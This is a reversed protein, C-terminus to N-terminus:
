FSKRITQQRKQGPRPLGSPGGPTTVVAAGSAYNARRQAYRIPFDPYTQVPGQSTIKYANGDFVVPNGYGDDAALPGASMRHAYGLWQYDLPAIAFLRAQEPVFGAYNRGLPALHLAVSLIMAVVVGSGIGGLWRVLDYAKGDVQLDTEQIRESALRLLTVSVGFLGLFAIVDWRHQWEFSSAVNAALFQALPEFYSTAVLGGLLCSIFTTAAGWAGESSVLYVTVALAILLGVDIM